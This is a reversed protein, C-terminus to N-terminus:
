FIQFIFNLFSEHQNTCRLINFFKALIINNCIIYYEKTLTEMFFYGDVLQSLYYFKNTECHRPCSFDKDFTNKSSTRETAKPLKNAGGRNKLKSHSM